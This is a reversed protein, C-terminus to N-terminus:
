AIVRMETPAAATTIASAGPTVDASAASRSPSRMELPVIAPSPTANPPTTSIVIPAPRLTCKSGIVSSTSTETSAILM